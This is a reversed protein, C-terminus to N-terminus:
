YIRKSSVDVNFASVWLKAELQTYCGEGSVSMPRFGKDVEHRCVWQRVAIAPNREAMLFLHIVRNKSSFHRM